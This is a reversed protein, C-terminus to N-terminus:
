LQFFMEYHAEATAQYVEATDIRGFDSVKIDESTMLLMVELLSGDDEPVQVARSNKNGIKYVCFDRMLVSLMLGQLNEREYVNDNSRTSNGLLNIEVYARYNGATGHPKVYPGDIRFEIHKRDNAVKDEGEVYLPMGSLHKRFEQLASAKIWRKIHKLQDTSNM